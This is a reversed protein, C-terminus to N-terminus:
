FTRCVNYPFFLTGDKDFGEKFDDRDKDDAPLHIAQLDDQHVEVGEKTKQWVDVLYDYRSVLEPFCASAMKCFCHLETTDFFPAVRQGGHGTMVEAYNAALHSASSILIILPYSDREAASAWNDFGNLQLCTQMKAPRRTSVSSKTLVLNASGIFDFLETKVYFRQNIGIKVDEKKVKLVRGLFLPQSPGVELLGNTPSISQGHDDTPVYVQEHGDISLTDNDNHENIGLESEHNTSLTVSIGNLDGDVLSSLLKM